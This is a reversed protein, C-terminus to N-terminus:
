VEHELKTRLRANGSLYGRILLACMGSMIDTNAVHHRYEYRASRRPEVFVAWQGLASTCPPVNQGYGRILLACMGSMIDTNTDVGVSM